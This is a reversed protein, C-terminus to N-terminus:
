MHPPLLFLLATAASALCRPRETHPPPACSCAGRAPGLAAPRRPFCWGVCGTASPAPTPVSQSPSCLLCVM